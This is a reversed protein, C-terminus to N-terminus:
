IKDKNKNVFDIIFQLRHECLYGDDHDCLSEYDMISSPISKEGYRSSSLNLVLEHLSSDDSVKSLDVLEHTHNIRNKNIFTETFGTM